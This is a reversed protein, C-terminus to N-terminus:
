ISALIKNVNKVKGSKASKAALEIAMQLFKEHESLKM